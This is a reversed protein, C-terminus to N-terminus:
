PRAVRALDRLPHFARHQRQYRANSDSLQRTEAASRRGNPYLQLHQPWARDFNPFALLEDLAMNEYLVAAQPEGMMIPCSEFALSKYEAMDEAEEGDHVINLRQM